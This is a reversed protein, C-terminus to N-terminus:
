NVWLWGGNNTFEFMWINWYFITEVIVWDCNIGRCTACSTCNICTASSSVKYSLFNLLKRVPPAYAGLGVGELERGEVPGEETVHSIRSNSTGSLRVYGFGMRKGRREETVCREWVCMRIGTSIRQRERRMYTRTRRMETCISGDFKGCKGHSQRLNRKCTVRVAHM